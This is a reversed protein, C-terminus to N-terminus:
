VIEEIRDLLESDDLKHTIIERQALKEAYIQAIRELQINRELAEVGNHRRDENLLQIMNWQQRPIDEPTITSRLYGQREAEGELIDSYKMGVYIPINFLVNPGNDNYYLIEAQYVGTQDLTQIYQFTTNSPT